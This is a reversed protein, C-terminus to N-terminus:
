EPKTAVLIVRKPAPYGEITNSSDSPDLFDSLSEFTMWETCRQEDISTVSEDIVRVESFGSQEILAMLKKSSPICWVNNMKAYRKEPILEEGYDQDIILSELVLEGGPCLLHKLHKIHEIPDRRHYIVGMSFVTDFSLQGPLDQVAFPLFYFPQESLYEKATQFQMAFRLTPDVGVVCQAGQGLMRWGYYGNGCGIDLVMRDKLSSISNKLRDWKINSQWEADVEIGFYNFPGKRWPMLTELSIKIQQQQQEDCDSPDGIMIEDQNFDFHSPTIDPLANIAVQWDLFDGHNINNFYEDLQIVLRESWVRM